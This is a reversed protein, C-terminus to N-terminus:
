KEFEKELKESISIADQVVQFIESNKFNLIDINQKEADATIAYIKGSLKVLDSNVGKPLFLLLKGNNIEIFELLESLKNKLYVVETKMEVVSFSEDYIPQARIEISNLLVILNAYLDLRKENRWLSKEKKSQNRQAVITGLFTILGGTITSLLSNLLDFVDSQLDVM